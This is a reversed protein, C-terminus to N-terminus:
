VLRCTIEKVFNTNTGRLIPWRGATWILTRTEEISSSLSNTTVGSSSQQLWLMRHQTHEATEGFAVDIYSLTLRLM